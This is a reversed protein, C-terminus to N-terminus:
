AIFDGLRTKRKVWVVYMVWLVHSQLLNIWVDVCSLLTGGGGVWGGGEGGRGGIKGNEGGGYDLLTCGFVYM